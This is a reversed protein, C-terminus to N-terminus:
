LMHPFAKVESFLGMLPLSRIRMFFDESILIYDPSYSLSELYKRPSHRFISEQNREHAPLDIRPACELM